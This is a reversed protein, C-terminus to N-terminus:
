DNTQTANDGKADPATDRGESRTAGSASGGQAEAAPEQKRDTKAGEDQMCQEKETGSLQDCHKSGGEGYPPSSPRQSAGTASDGGSQTASQAAAAASFVLASTLLAAHVLNPKMAM